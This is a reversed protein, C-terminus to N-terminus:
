QINESLWSLVAAVNELRRRAATPRAAGVLIGFGGLDAAAAFAAEDTQDDGVMIPVFGEFPPQRMLNRLSDGKNPGPTRLESVMVGAQLTLGHAEAIRRTADLVGEASDAAHRYHLALSLQKEELVLGPRADALLQLALRATAIGPSPETAEVLGGPDRRVLGHVAGAATVSGELIRDAEELTRGTLVALRGQLREGLRLLLDTRSALPGVDGPQPEIAAITGDLDLFLAAERVDLPPPRERRTGDM